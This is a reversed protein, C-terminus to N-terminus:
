CAHSMVCVEDQVWGEDQEMEGAKRKNSRRTRKTPVGYEEALYNYVPHSTSVSYTHQRLGRRRFGGKGNWLGKCCSSHAIEFCTMGRLSPHSFIKRNHDVHHCHARVQCGPHSCTALSRGSRSIKGYGDKLGAQKRWKQELKCVQCHQKASVKM